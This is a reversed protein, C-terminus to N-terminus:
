ALKCNKGYGMGKHDKFVDERRISSLEIYRQLNKWFHRILLVHGPAGIERTSIRPTLEKGSLNIKLVPGQPGQYM